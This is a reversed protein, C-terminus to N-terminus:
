NAQLWDFGESAQRTDEEQWRWSGDGVVVDSDFGCEKVVWEQKVVVVLVQSLVSCLRGRDTNDGDMGKGRDKRRANSQVSM